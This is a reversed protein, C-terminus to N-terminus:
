NLITCPWIPLFMPIYFYQMKGIEWTPFVQRILFDANLISAKMSGALFIIGKYPAFLYSSLICSIDLEYKYITLFLTTYVMCLIWDVCQISCWALLIWALYSYVRKRVKTNLQNIWELLMNTKINESSKQQLNTQLLLIHFNWYMVKFVLILFDKYGKLFYVKM